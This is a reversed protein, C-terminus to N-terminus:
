FGPVNRVEAGWKELNGAVFRVVQEHAAQGNGTVTLPFGFRIHITKEPYVPGADKHLSSQGQFDSKLAVPIVPVGAKRALKIGLTNFHAADFVASRTSQPFVIVSCGNALSNAGQELVARLDERPNRRSVAIPRIAKVINGFIPYRFLSEKLVFTVDNFAQVIGPLFFADIMSMHNAIFVAPGRHELVGELGSVELRGGVFEVLRIIDVSGSAWLTRSYTSRRALISQTSIIKFLGAYYAGTACGPIKEFLFRGDKRSQYGHNSKLIRWFQTRNMTRSKNGGESFIM